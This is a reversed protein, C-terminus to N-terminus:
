RFTIYYEKEDSNYRFSVNDFIVEGNLKKTQVAGPVNVIDYKEDLLEFVRDM